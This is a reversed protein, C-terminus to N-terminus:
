GALVMMSSIINYHPLEVYLTLSLSSIEILNQMIVVNVTKIIKTRLHATAKAPSSTLRSNSPWIILVSVGGTM